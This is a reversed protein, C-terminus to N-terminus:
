VIHNTILSAPLATKILAAIQSESLLMKAQRLDEVRLNVQNESLKDACEILIGIDKSIGAQALDITAQAATFQNLTNQYSLM